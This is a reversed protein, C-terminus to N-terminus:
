SLKQAQRPPNGNSLNIVHWIGQKHPEASLSIPTKLTPHKFAIQRAHLGISNDKNGRRAGYKVDGQIPHGIKALQCRIQHHRGTELTVDLLSFNDMRKIVKYNLRASKAGAQMSVFSKNRKGDRKLLHELTAEDTTVNGEVLAWYSKEIERGAFAANMRSLAKSTKALMVIGSTPRDLRHIVGIFAKGSKNHRKAVDVEAWDKLCPDGTKDGQVLLGAPKNVVLLHNDEFLITPNM